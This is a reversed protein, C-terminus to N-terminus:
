YGELELNCIFDKVSDGDGSRMKISTRSGESSSSLPLMGPLMLMGM